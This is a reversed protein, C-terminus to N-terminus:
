LLGMDRVARVSARGSMKKAFGALKPFAAIDVEDGALWTTIPYLYCDAMSIRDGLVFPSLALAQELYTCSAAMTQPVKAMMDDFSAQHDAWRHGRRKHAHNVHMTSALYYMCERMRAAAFPDAPVLARDPALTAIYDLIAGTETLIGQPTDLAPVRGKANIALYTAGTQQSATFDIIAPTFSLGAEGLGVAVAVSITNPACYLTLM